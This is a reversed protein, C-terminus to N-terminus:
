KGICFKEFIHEIVDDDVYRGTIADLENVAAKIDEAAFELSAEASVRALAEDARRLSEAHRMDNIVLGRGDFGQAGLAMKLMAQRLEDLGSRTLASVNVAAVDFKNEVIVPLDAKNLVIITHPNKILALLDRDTNELPRSQDLVLLVIDASDVSARSRRVAEEEIKDRPTLIGATDVLNVPIGDINAMEELVDRTTGAVDTVIARPARLLANLLSSKGVNPKGCIVVKIGEKLIRGSQVTALLATLRERVRRINGTLREAQLSQTDDEPFNLVAEIDALVTLLQARLQELEVSLDGKLQRECARLAADTRASIVDLVAEAQALDIRGNLFARKTFEGPQALRAGNVLCLELLARVAAPGGHGSIEIVDECTYSKPARMLTVLVEDLVDGSATKVWGHHVSFTKWTKPSAGSRGFFIRELIVFSDKGSLRVVGVGGMGVPTIIAAITDELGKYQYM